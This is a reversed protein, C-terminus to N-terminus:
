KKKKKKRDKVIISQRRLVRTFVFEGFKHSIMSETLFITRFNKGNYIRFNKKDFLFFEPLIVKSRLTQDNKKLDKKYNILYFPKWRSRM